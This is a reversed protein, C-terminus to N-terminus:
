KKRGASLQEYTVGYKEAIDRAYSLGHPVAVRVRYSRQGAETEAVLSAALSDGDGEANLEDLKRALKHMHTNYITRAGLDRLARVADYAIFFGEEFSTTSFSENLLFLAAQDAALFIDRFRKSEEGLRGLDMTKNEDAPFHTFINSAPSFVFSEAPVYIGGQALLFAIGVAQTITTKGGRNAGTLIYIRHKRDFVLNNTVIESPAHKTLKLNHLGEAKMMRKKASEAEPKCMAYGASRLKEVYEAWRIYYVLEPIRAAIVQTSVSVHRSLIQKLKRVTASLMATAARDLSHMVDDSRSDPPPTVIGAMGARGRMMADAAQELAPSGAEGAGTRFTYKKKWTIDPSLEDQRNLFDCFNALIGSKTFYRSNISVIGIGNPEFRDNLNVGLTVSKIESAGVKLQAIDQKLAEFGNDEYLAKVYEKLATLGESHIEKENLCRYIGEVCEIYEKMEDLRHILEWIGSADSEKTFSGYTRLFDVRDLLAHLEERLAPYRLIDEFIDCRYKIVQQDGSIRMMTRRILNREPEMKTLEACIQELSLDHVTEEPLMQYKPDVGPPHLLSIEEYKAGAIHVDATNDTTNQETPM